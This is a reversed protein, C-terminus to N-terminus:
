VRTTRGRVAHKAAALTSDDAMRVIMAAILLDQVYAQIGPNTNLHAITELVFAIHGQERVEGTM